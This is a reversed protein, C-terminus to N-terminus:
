VLDDVTGPVQVYDALWNTSIIMPTPDSEGHPTAAAHSRRRV